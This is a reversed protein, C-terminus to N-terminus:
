ESSSLATDESIADSWEGHGADGNARVRFRYRTEGVLGAVTYTLSEKPVLQTSIQVGAFNQLEVTYNQIPYHSWPMDWKLTISNFQIDLVSVIPKLPPAAPVYITSLIYSYTEYM